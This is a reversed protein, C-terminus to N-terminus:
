SAQLRGQHQPRIKGKTVVVFLAVFVVSALICAVAGAVYWWKVPDQNFLIVMLLLPIAISEAIVGSILVDRVQRQTPHARDTKM